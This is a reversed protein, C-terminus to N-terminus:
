GAVSPLLVSYDVGDRDMVELRAHPEFAARPMEEWTRPEVTRDPMLAGVSSSGTLPVSEGDIVWAESGDTQTEVRPCRNAWKSELRVFWLEPPEQVHDAASILGHKLEM